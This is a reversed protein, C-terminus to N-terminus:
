SHIDWQFGYRNIWEKETSMLMEAYTFLEFTNSESWATIGDENKLVEIREDLEEKVKEIIMEAVKNATPGHDFPYVHWTKSNYRVKVIFSM